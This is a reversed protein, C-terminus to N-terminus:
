CRVSFNGCCDDFAFTKSVKALNRWKTNFNSSNLALLHTRFLVANFDTFFDHFNTWANVLFTFRLPSPKQPDRQRNSPRTLRSHHLLLWIGNRYSSRLQNSVSRLCTRLSGAEFWCAYHFKPKFSWRRRNLPVVDLATDSARQLQWQALRLLDVSFVDRVADTFEARAGQWRRQRQQLGGSGAARRCV